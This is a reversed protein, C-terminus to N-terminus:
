LQPAKDARRWNVVAVGFLVIFGGGLAAASPVERLTLWALGVSLMPVLYLLTAASSANMRQLVGAWIAYALAGPVVGMYIVGLTIGRSAIQIEHFLQVSFACLIFTAGWIAYCTMEFPRYKKLYSKQLIMYSSAGLAALLILLAGTSFFAPAPASVHAAPTEGQESLAILSAGLFCVAIGIWQRPALHEKLFAAALIAIFIPSINVLFAASGATVTREGWNLAVHYVVIGCFGMAVLGPWDKRDPLRVGFRPALAALVGSAVLFRLLAMAGPSYERGAARIVAFASAWALLAIIILVVLRADPQKVPAVALPTSL